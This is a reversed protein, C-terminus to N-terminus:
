MSFLQKALNSLLRTLYREENEWVSRLDHEHIRSVNRDM